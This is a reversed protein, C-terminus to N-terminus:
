MATTTYRQEKVNVYVQKFATTVANIINHRVHPINRGEVIGVFTIYMREQPLSEKSDFLCPCGLMRNVIRTSM